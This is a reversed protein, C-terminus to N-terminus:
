AWDTVGLQEYVSQCRKLCDSRGGTRCIQQKWGMGGSKVARVRKRKPMQAFM